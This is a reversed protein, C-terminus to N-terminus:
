ILLPLNSRGVHPELHRYPQTTDTPRRPPRGGVRSVAPPCRGIKLQHITALSDCASAMVGRSKMWRVEWCHAPITRGDLHRAPYTKTGERDRSLGATPRCRRSALHLFQRDQTFGAWSAGVRAGDRPPTASGPPAAAKSSILHMIGASLCWVAWQISRSNPCMGAVDKIQL